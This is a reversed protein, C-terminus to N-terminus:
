ATRQIPEIYFMKFISTFRQTGNKFYEHVEKEPCSDMRMVALCDELIDSDLGRLDTLDLPYAYGNYLGALLRAVRQVQGSDRTECLEVLRMLAPEGAKRAERLAKALEAQKSFFKLFAADTQAVQQFQDHNM